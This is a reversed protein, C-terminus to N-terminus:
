PSVEERAPPKAWEQAAHQLWQWMATAYPREVHLRWGPLIRVISAHLGAFLTSASEEPGAPNAEFEYNAGLQMLAPAAPGTVDFLMLGDSVDTIAVGDDSWGFTEPHTSVADQAVFLLRDPTLRLSYADRECTERPGVCALGGRKALFASFNGSVLWATRPSLATIGLGPQQIEARSWDPVPSWFLGRDPM